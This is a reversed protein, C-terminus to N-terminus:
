ISMLCILLLFYGFKICVYAHSDQMCSPVEQAHPTESEKMYATNGYM